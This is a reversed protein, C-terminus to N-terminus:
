FLPLPSFHTSTPQLPNLNTNEFKDVFLVPGLDRNKKNTFGLKGVKILKLGSRVIKV